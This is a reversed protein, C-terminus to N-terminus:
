HISMVPSIRGSRFQHHLDADCALDPDLKKDYIVEALDDIGREQDVDIHSKKGHEDYVWKTRQGCFMIDNWDESGIKYEKGIEHVLFKMFEPTGTFFSDDVHILLIGVVERGHAPSGTVPDLLLELAEDLANDGTSQRLKREVRKYQRNSVDLKTTKVVEHTGGKTALQDKYMVYCCRDARTPTMGLTRFTKDLRNWWLRPADKLGYASRVLRGGFWPKYGAEPPMQCVVDRSADFKDGQLFATKLDIHCLDWYNNAAVQCTLRFGPRTATPSDTQITNGQKDLFGRLVWRAKCKEFNGDKDRKITLVWRGTVYNKCHHKRMDVIEYVHNEEQWSKFEDM